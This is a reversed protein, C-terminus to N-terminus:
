INRKITAFSQKRLYFKRKDTQFSFRTINENFYIILIGFFTPGQLHIM